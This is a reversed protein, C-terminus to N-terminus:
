MWSRSRGAVFISSFMVAMAAIFILTGWVRTRSCPTSAIPQRRSSPRGPSAVRRRARPRGLRLPGDSRRGAGAYGGRRAVDRAARLKQSGDNGYREAARRGFLRRWGAAAARCPVAADTAVIRMSGRAGVRCLAASVGGSVSERARMPSRQAEAALHLKCNKLEWRPSQGARCGRARWAAEFACRCRDRDAPRTGCRGHQARRGDAFGAVLVQSVLYLNRELNSADVISLVVDPPETNDRRGLLVDVTVM